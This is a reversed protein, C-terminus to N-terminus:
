IDMFEVEDVVQLKSTKEYKGNHFDEVFQRFKKNFEADDEVDSRGKFEFEQGDQLRIKFSRQYSIFYGCVQPSNEMIFEVKYILGDDTVHPIVDLIRGCWDWNTLCQVGDVEFYVIPNTM